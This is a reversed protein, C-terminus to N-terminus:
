KTKGNGMNEQREEKEKKEKNTMGPERDEWNGRKNEDEQRKM